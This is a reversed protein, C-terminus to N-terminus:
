SAGRTVFAPTGERDELRMPAHPVQGSPGTLHRVGGYLRESSARLSAHVACACTPEQPTPCSALLGQLRTAGEPALAFWWYMDWDEDHDWCDHSYVELLAHGCAACLDMREERFVVNHGKDGHPVGKRELWLLPRWASAGCVPCMQLHTLQRM